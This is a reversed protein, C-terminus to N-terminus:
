KTCKAISTFFLFSPKSSFIILKGLQSQTIFVYLLRSKPFSIVLTWHNKNQDCLPVDHIRRITDPRSNNNLMSNIEIFTFRQIRPSLDTRRASSVSQFISPRLLVSANLKSRPSRSRSSVRHHAYFRINQTWLRALFLPHLLIARALVRMRYWLLTPSLFIM